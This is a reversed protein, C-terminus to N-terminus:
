AAPWRWDLVRRPAPGARGPAARGALVLLRHRRHGGPGGPRAHLRGPRRSARTGVSARPRDRHGVTTTTCRAPSCAPGAAACPPPDIGARELAEWSAELLLRQQPDMASRRARALHRLLGRRLRGRRPPVRGARTYSTGPHDPDPHYLGDLDWGRDTPSSRSRTATRRRGAAVPGGPVGRRRPLPLEDRRDRDARRRPGRGGAAAPADPAARGHRAQPVRPAQRREGDFTM